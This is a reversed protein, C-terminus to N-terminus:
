ARQINPTLTDLDAQRMEDGRHRRTMKDEKLGRCEYGYEETIM